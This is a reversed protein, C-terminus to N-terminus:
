LQQKSHKIDLSASTLETVSSTSSAKSGKSSSAKASRAEDTSEDEDSEDAVSSAWAEIALLFEPFSIEGSNDVDMEALRAAVVDGLLDGNNAPARGQPAASATVRDLSGASRKAQMSTPTAHGALVHAIEDKSVLGDHNLDFSIFCELVLESAADFEALDDAHVRRAAQPRTPERVEKVRLLCVIAVMVVFEEYTLREHHEPDIDVADFLEDLALRDTKGQADSSHKSDGGVESDDISSVSHLESMLEQSITVFYRSLHTGKSFAPTGARTGGASTLGAAEAARSAGRQFLAVPGVGESESALNELAESAAAGETAQALGFSVLATCFEDKSLLGDGDRDLDNFVVRAKGFTRQLLPFRLALRDISVGTPQRRVRTTVPSLHTGGLVGGSAADASGGAGADKGEGSKQGRQGDDATAKVADAYSIGGPTTPAPAGNKAPSPAPTPALSVSATLSTSARAEAEEVAKRKEIAKMLQHLRLQVTDMRRMAGRRSRDSARAGGAGGLQQQSSTRVDVAGARELSRRMLSACGGMGAM